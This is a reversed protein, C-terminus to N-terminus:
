RGEDGYLDERHLSLNEPWAGMDDIPFSLSRRSISSLNRLKARERLCDVFNEVEAIQDSPLCQIKEMLRQTNQTVNTM